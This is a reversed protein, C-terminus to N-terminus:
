LSHELNGYVAATKYGGGEDPPLLIYGVDANLPRCVHELLQNLLVRLDIVNEVERGFYRLRQRAAHQEAFLTNNVLDQVANRVPAFLGAILATSTIIALNSESGTISILVLQFGTVAGLYIAGLLVSMIAYVISRNIIVDIDWLRYRAIATGFAFPIALLTVSVVDFTLLPERGMMLPAIYAILLPLVGIAIGWSIWRLQARQVDDRTAFFNAVFFLLTGSLAMFLSALSITKLTVVLPLGPGVLLVAVWPSSLALLWILLFLWRKNRQVFSFRRPFTMAFALTAAMSGLGIVMDRFAFHAWFIPPRILSILQYDFPDNLGLTIVNMSLLWFLQASTDRQRQVFVLLGVLLFALGLLPTTPTRFIVGLPSLQGPASTVTLEERPGGPNDPNIARTLTYTVPAMVDWNQPQGNIKSLWTDLPVGNIHTIFDGAHVADTGGELIRGVTVGQETFNFVGVSVGDHPVNLVYVAYAINGTLVLIAVLWIAILRLRLATSM